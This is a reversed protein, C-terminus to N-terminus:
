KQSKELLFEIYKPSVDVNFLWEPQKVLKTPLKGEMIYKEIDEYSIQIEFDSKKLDNYKSLPISATVVIKNPFTKLIYENPLGVCNIPIELTKETFEEIKVKLNVRSPTYAVNEIRELDIIKTFSKSIDELEFRKTVVLNMTDLINTGAYVIVESPIIELSSISYGQKPIISGNFKIPMRKQARSTYTLSIQEPVVSQLKTTAHLQKLVLSELEKSSIKWNGRSEKIDGMNIIIPNIKNGLVYNLLMNGQDSIQATIFQPMPMIFSIEPPVDEYQIPIKIKIEANEELTRQMWFAFSLLIFIFFVWFNKWHVRQFFKKLEKIQETFDSKTM